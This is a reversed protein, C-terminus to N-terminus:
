VLVFKVRVFTIFKPFIEEDTYVYFYKKTLKNSPAVSAIINKTLLDMSM